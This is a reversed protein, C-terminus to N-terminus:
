YEVGTSVFAGDFFNDDADVPKGLRGEARGILYAQLQLVKPMPKDGHTTAWQARIDKMLADDFADPPVVFPLPANPGSMMIRTLVEQKEMDNAARDHGQQKLWLDAINTILHESDTRGSNRLNDLTMMIASKDRSFRGPDVMRRAAAKTIDTISLGSMKAGSMQNMMGVQRRLEVLWALAAERDDDWLKSFGPVLMAAEKLDSSSPEFKADVVGMQARRIEGSRTDNAQVQKELLAARRRTVSRADTPNLAKTYLSFTTDDLGALFVDNEMKGLIQPDSVVIGDSIEKARSKLALVEAVTLERYLSVPVNEWVGGNEALADLVQLKAYNHAAEYDRKDQAQRATARAVLNNCYVPDVAARPDNKKFYARYEGETAWAKARSAYEPSLPSVKKGTTADVVEGARGLSAKAATLKKQVAEPLYATWPGGENKAKDQADKVQKESSFYEALALDEDGAHKKFISGYYAQGLALNYNRDNLFREKDWPRGLMKAAEMGQDVTLQSAGYRYTAPDGSTTDAPVSQHGGASVAPLIGFHFARINAAAEKSEGGVSLVDGFKLSAASEAQRVANVAAEVKNADEYEQIVPNIMARATAVDEVTMDKAHAQLLGLATVAVTPNKDSGVMLGKIGNSYMASRYKKLAVDRQEDGWGSLNGLADIAEALSESNAKLADPQTAYTAGSEVLLSISATQANKANEISQQLVHQSVSGFNQAYLTTAAARFKRQQRPTLRASLESGFDQLATDVQEVLGRGEEDPTTANEGLKGAWGDDGVRLELMRRRLQTTAETVRATDQEDLFKTYARDLKNGAKELGANVDSGPVNVVSDSMPRYGMITPMVQMGQTEPIQAM